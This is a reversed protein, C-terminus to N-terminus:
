KRCLSTFLRPVRAPFPACQPLVLFPGAGEPFGLACPTRSSHALWEPCRPQTPLTGGWVSTQM